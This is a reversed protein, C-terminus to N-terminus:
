DKSLALVLSALATFIAHCRKFHYYMHLQCWWQSLFSQIRTNMTFVGHSSNWFSPLSFLSPTTNSVVVVAFLLCIVVLLLKIYLPRSLPPNLLRQRNHYLFLRLLCSGFVSFAFLFPHQRQKQMKLVTPTRRLLIELFFFLCFTPAM